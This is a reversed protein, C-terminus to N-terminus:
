YKGYVVELRAVRVGLWQGVHTAGEREPYTMGFKNRFRLNTLHQFLNLMVSLTINANRAVVLLPAVRERVSNCAFIM